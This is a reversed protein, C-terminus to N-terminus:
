FGGQVHSIVISAGIAWFLAGEFLRLLRERVATMAKLMLRGVYVFLPALLGIALLAGLPDTMLGESTAGVAAADISLGSIVLLLKPWSQAIPDATTEYFIATKVCSLGLLGFVTLAVWHDIHGIFSVLQEGLLLGCGFALVHMVCAALMLQSVGFARQKGLVLSDITVSFALLVPNM